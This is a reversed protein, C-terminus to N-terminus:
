ESGGPRATKAISILMDRFLPPTAMRQNKSLRQCIGTKIARARAEKSHFGDELRAFDGPAPGWKLAPLEVGCAYL